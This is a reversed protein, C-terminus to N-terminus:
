SEPSPKKSASARRRRRCCLCALITVLVVALAVGGAFWPDQQFLTVLRSLISRKGDDTPPRGPQSTPNAPEGCPLTITSPAMSSSPAVSLSPSSSPACSPAGSPASSPPSTVCAWRPRGTPSLYLNILAHRDFMLCVEVILYNGSDDFNPYTYTEGPSIAALADSLGEDSTAHTITVTNPEKVDANYGKAQNYQLHLDGARLVVVDDAPLAAGNLNYDVFGLLRM